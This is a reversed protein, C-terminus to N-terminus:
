QRGSIFPFGEKMQSMKDFVPFFETDFTLILDAIPARSTVGVM